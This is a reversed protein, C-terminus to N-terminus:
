TDIAYLKFEEISVDIIWENVLQIGSIIGTLHTESENHYSFGLKKCIYDHPFCISNNETQDISNM